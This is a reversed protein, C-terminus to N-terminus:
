TEQQWVDTHEHHTIHKQEAAEFSRQRRLESQKHAHARAEQRRNFKMMPAIQM